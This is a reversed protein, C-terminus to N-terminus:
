TDFIFLQIYVATFCDIFAIVFVAFVAIWSTDLADIIYYTSLCNMFAVAFFFLFFGVLIDIELTVNFMILFDQIFRDDM